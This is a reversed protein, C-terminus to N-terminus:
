PVPQTQAGKPVLRQVQRQGGVAVQQLREGRRQFSRPQIAYCYAHVGHVRRVNSRM